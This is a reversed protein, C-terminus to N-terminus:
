PNVIDYVSTIGWGEPRRSGESYGYNYFFSQVAVTTTERSIVFEVTEQFTQEPEIALYSNGWDCITQEIVPWQEFAENRHLNDRADLREELDQDDLVPAIDLLRIVGEQLDVKVQSSNHLKVTVDLHVYSNGITRHNVTQSVTIHPALSRFLKLKFIAFIAAGIIAATAFAAQIITSLDKFWTLEPM